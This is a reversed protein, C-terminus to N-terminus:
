EGILKKIESLLNQYEYPKEFYAAIGHALIKQKYQEDQMGTLIIVPILNTHTSVDLRELVSHGGGGPLMLDLIILDPKSKHAESVGLYADQAIIVNYGSSSLRRALVKALDPEDEIILITKSVM